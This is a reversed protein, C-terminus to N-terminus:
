NWGRLHTFISCLWVQQHAPSMLEHSPGPQWLTIYIVLHMYACAHTCVCVKLSQECKHKRLGYTRRYFQFVAYSMLSDLFIRKCLSIQKALSFCVGTKGELRRTLQVSVYSFHSLAQNTSMSSWLQFCFNNSSCGIALCQYILNRSVHLNIGQWCFESIGFHIQM